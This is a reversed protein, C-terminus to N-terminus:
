ANTLRKLPKECNGFGNFRSAHHPEDRDDAQLGTSILIRNLQAEIRKSPPVM